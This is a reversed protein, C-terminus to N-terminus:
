HIGCRGIRDAGEDDVVMCQEPPSQFHDEGGLVVDFQDTLGAVPGLRHRLGAFGQGVHDQHVDPHGLAAADLGAARHLFYSGARLDDHQRDAVLFLVKESAM